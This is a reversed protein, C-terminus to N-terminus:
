NDDEDTYKIIGEYLVKELRTLFEFSDMIEYGKEEIFVKVEESLIEIDDYSVIEKNENILNDPKREENLENFKKIM